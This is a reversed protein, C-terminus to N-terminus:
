QITEMSDRAALLHSWTRGTKLGWVASVGIGFERALSAQGEGDRLRRLIELAQSESLKSLHSREGRVTKGHAHRDAINEAHTGYVINEPRNDDKNGNRHRSVMGDPRLGNFALAVLTHVFYGRRQKFGRLSVRLYGGKDRCPRLQHMSEYRGGQGPMASWITGDSGAFYGPCGPIPKLIPQDM